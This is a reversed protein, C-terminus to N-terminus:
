ALPLEERCRTLKDHLAIIPELPPLVVGNGCTDLLRCTSYGAQKKLYEARWQAFRQQEDATERPWRVNCAFHDCRWPKPTLRARFSGQLKCLRQYLPDAGLRTMADTAEAAAASFLAHTVLLRLGALTRYIRVNWGPNDRVFQEVRQRAADESSPMAPASAGGFLRAFFGKVNAAGTEPPFDIDVFMVQEANLVLAGWANMTVVAAPAGAAADLTQIVEERLPADGYGYRDLPQGQRYKKLARQAAETALRQADDRSEDSWRWCAFRIPQGDDGIEQAAGQAWYKPFRM